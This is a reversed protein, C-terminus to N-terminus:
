QNSNPLQKNSANAEKTRHSDIRKLYWYVIAFSNFILSCIFGICIVMLYM